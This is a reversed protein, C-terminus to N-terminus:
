ARVLKSQALDTVASVFSEVFSNVDATEQIVVNPFNVQPTLNQQQYNVMYERTARDHLLQLDEGNIEIEGQQKVRLSNGIGYKELEKRRDFERIRKDLEEITGKTSLGKTKAKKQLDELRIQQNIRQELQPISGKADLGMSKAKIQLNQLKQMANDYGKVIPEKAGKNTIKDWLNSVSQGLGNVWNILDTTKNIISTLLGNWANAIPSLMQGWAIALQQKAGKLRNSSTELTNLKSNYAEMVGRGTLVDNNMDKVTKDVLALSEATLTSVGTLARINPIMDAMADPNAEAAEQLRELAYALGKSQLEAAGVPVGYARLVKEAQKSPKILATISARLATAASATDLGGKTLVSMTALLEKYSVGASKAIPAVQGINAALEGVTTKGVVQARFFAASVDNAEDASLSYANIVNTLGNISTSLDTAGAKALIQASKYAKISTEVDGIASVSNFLATNADQTSIGLQIAQKSAEELAKSNKSFSTDNRDLLNTVDVLSSQYESYTQISQENFQKFASIAKMISEVIMDVLKTAIAFKGAVGAFVDKLFGGSKKGITGLKELIGSHKKAEEAAEQQKRKIDEEAKSLQSFGSVLKRNAEIRESIQQKIQKNFVTTLEAQRREHEEARAIEEQKQRAQELTANLSDMERKQNAYAVTAKMAEKSGSSYAYTMDEMKQKAKETAITAKDLATTVKQIVGSMKDQFELSSSITAM